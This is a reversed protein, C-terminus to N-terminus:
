GRDVGEEGAVAVTESQKATYYHLTMSNLGELAKRVSLM